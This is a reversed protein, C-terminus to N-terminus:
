PTFRSILVASLGRESLWLSAKEVKDPSVLRSILPHKLARRGFLRGVLFLLMDGVVIGTLCALVGETLGLKGQAILVGAAICTLDESALTGAALLIFQPIM